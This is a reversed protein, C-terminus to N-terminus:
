VGASVIAYARKALFWACFAMIASIGAFTVTVPNLALARSMGKEILVTPGDLTGAGGYVYRDGNNATICGSPALGLQNSRYMLMCVICTCSCYECVAYHPTVPASHM